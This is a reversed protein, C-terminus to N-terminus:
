LGVQVVLCLLLQACGLCEYTQQGVHDCPTTFQGRVQVSNSGCITSELYWPFIQHMFNSKEGMFIGNWIVETVSNSFIAESM